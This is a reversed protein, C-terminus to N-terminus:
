YIGIADFFSIILIEFIIVNILFNYFDKPANICPEKYAGNGYSKGVLEGIQDFQYWSINDYEWGTFDKASKYKKAKEALPILVKHLKIKKPTQTKKKM